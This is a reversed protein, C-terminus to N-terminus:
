RFPLLFLIRCPGFAAKRQAEVAPPLFRYWILLFLLVSLLYANKPRMIVVMPSPSFICRDVLWGVWWGITMKSELCRQTGREVCLAVNSNEFLEIFGNWSLIRAMKDHSAPPFVPVRVLSGHGMVGM